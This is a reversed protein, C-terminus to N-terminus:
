LLAKLNLVKHKHNGRAALLHSKLLLLKNKVFQLKMSCFPAELVFQLLAVALFMHCLLKLASGHIKRGLM